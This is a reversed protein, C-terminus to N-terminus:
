GFPPKAYVVWDHKVSADILRAFASDNEIGHLEGAIWARKLLDIFKGRFVRSLVRM